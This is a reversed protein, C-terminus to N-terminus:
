NAHVRLTSMGWTSSACILRMSAMMLEMVMTSRRLGAMRSALRRRRMALRLPVLTCSILASSVCNLCICLEGNRM